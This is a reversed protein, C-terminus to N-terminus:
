ASESQTSPEVLLPSDKHFTVEWILLGVGVSIAIDAINYTPWHMFGLHMDIFDIVVQTLQEAGGDQVFHGAGEIM